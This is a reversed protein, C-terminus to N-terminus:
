TSLLEQFLIAGLHVQPNDVPPKRCGLPLDSVRDIGLIELYDPLAQLHSIEAYPLWTV